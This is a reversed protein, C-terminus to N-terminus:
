NVRKRATYAYDRKEKEHSVHTENKEDSFMMPFQLRNEFECSAGGGGTNM